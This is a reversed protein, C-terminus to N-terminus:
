CNPKWGIVSYPVTFEVIGTSYPAIDYQQYYITIGEPSLYYSDKDFNKIILSKYEDFYINQRRQIAEAQRIIENILLHKYDTDPRFFNYLSLCTGCCLEWTDSARVTTGHAGGTFEYRDYYLSFFCNENYTIFYEMYAEYGLFPYGTTKSRAYAQMAQKFLHKAYKKYNNVEMYIQANIINEAQKNNLSIQPYKITLKLMETNNYNFTKNYEHMIIDASYCNNNM